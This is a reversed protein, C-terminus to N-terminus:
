VLTSSILHSNLYVSPPQPLHVLISIFLHSTVSSLPAQPFSILSLYVFSWQPFRILSSPVFPISRFPSPQAFYNPCIAPPNRNFPPHVSVFSSQPFVCSVVSPISHGTSPGNYSLLPAMAPRPLSRSCEPLGAVQMNLRSTNHLRFLHHPCWCSHLLCPHWPLATVPALLAQWVLSHLEVM